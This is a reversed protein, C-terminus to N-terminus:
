LASKQEEAFYCPLRVEGGYQDLLSAGHLLLDYIASTDSATRYMYPLRNYEVGM